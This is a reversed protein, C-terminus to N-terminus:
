ITFDLVLVVVLVISAGDRDGSLPRSQIANFLRAKGCGGSVRCGVGLVRCEVGSV